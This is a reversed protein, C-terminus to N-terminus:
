FSGEARRTPAERRASSGADAAASSGVARESISDEVRATPQELVWGRLDDDGVAFLEAAAVRWDPNAAAPVAALASKGLPDVDPKGAPAGSSEEAKYKEDPTVKSSTAGM